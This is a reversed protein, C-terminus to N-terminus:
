GFRMWCSDCYRISAQTSQRLTVDGQANWLSRSFTRRTTLLIRRSPHQTTLLSRNVSEIIGLLCWPCVAMKRTIHRLAGELHTKEQSFPSMWVAWSPLPRRLYSCWGLNFSECFLFHWIIICCNYFLYFSLFFYQSTSISCNIFASVIDDSRVIWKRCCTQHHHDIDSSNRSVLFFRSTWLSVYLSRDSCTVCM